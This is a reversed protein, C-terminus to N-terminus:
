CWRSNELSAPHGGVEHFLLPTPFSQHQPPSALIPTLRVLYFLNSAFSEENGNKLAIKGSKPLWIALLLNFIPSLRVSATSPTASPNPSTIALPDIYCCPIPWIEGANEALGMLCNVTILWSTHWGFVCSKLVFEHQFLQCRWKQWIDGHMQAFQWSSSSWEVRSFFYSDM